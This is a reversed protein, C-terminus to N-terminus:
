ETTYGQGKYDRVWVSWRTAYEEYSSQWWQQATQGNGRFITYMIQNADVGERFSTYTMFAGDSSSLLTNKTQWQSVTDLFYSREFGLEEETVVKSYPLIELGKLARASVIQAVDSCIFRIFDKAGQKNKSTKPIVMGGGLYLPTMGRAQAVEEVDADSVGDPLTNTVGDVYDIVSCLTADDNITPLRSIIASAIPFRMMGMVQEQGRSKLSELFMKTESEFYPGDVKFVTKSRNTRFGAGAAAGGAYTADMSAADDHVYDNSPSMLKYVINYFDEIQQRYVEYVTPKTEDFKYTQTSEDYYRGDYYQTAKEYGLIHYLWTQQSYRLNENGDGLSCCMLYVDQDESVGPYDFQKVTEGLAFLEDTTRPLTYGNPFITDLVTKNYVFGYTTGQSYPLSFERVNKEDAYSKLLPSLKDQIKKAGEVEEEGYAYSDWVDTLVEVSGKLDALSQDFFYLDAPATQSSVKSFEEEPTTSMKLQIYTDSNYKDMYERAIETIWEKGYANARYIVSVKKPRNAYEELGSIQEAKCGAFGSLCMFVAAVVLFLSKISFKKM